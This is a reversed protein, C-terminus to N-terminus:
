TARPETSQSIGMMLRDRIMQSTSNSRGASSTPTGTLVPNGSEQPKQLLKHYMEQLRSNGRKPYGGPASGVPLSSTRTLDGGDEDKGQLNQSNVSARVPKFRSEFPRPVYQDELQYNPESNHRSTQELVGLWEPYPENNLDFFKLFAKHIFTEDETPGDHESSGLAGTVTLSSFKTNIKEIFSRNPAVNPQCQSM